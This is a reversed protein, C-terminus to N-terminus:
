DLSKKFVLAEIVNKSKIEASQRYGRKLFVDKHVPNVYIFVASRPFEKLSAEIADIVKSLVPEKFPNFFFFTNADSPVRHEVADEHIVEINKCQLRDIVKEINKKSVEYLQASFEVGIIHRFPYEAAMLLARGKGSGYDVFVSNEYDINAIDLIKTFYYYNTSQGQEALSKNESKIDLQDMEIIRITDVKYKWEFILEYLLFRFTPLIGRQEFSNFIGKIYSVAIAEFTNSM